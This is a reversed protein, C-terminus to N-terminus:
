KFDVYRGQLSRYEIFYGPPITIKVVDGHMLRWSGEHGEVQEVRSTNEIGTQTIFEQITHMCKFDGMYDSSCSLPDAWFTAETTFTSRTYNAKRSSLEDEPLSDVVINKGCENSLMLKDTTTVYAKLCKGSEDKYIATTIFKKDTHTTNDVFIKPTPNYLSPWRDLIFRAYTSHFLSNYYVPTLYSNQQLAFFQMLIPISLLVLHKKGLRAYTIIAYILFPIVYLVHRTPAFGATGYKWAPNTQYSFATVVIAAFILWYTKNKSALKLFLYGGAICLAPAYWFLGINLDFFQEFLRQLSVNQIGFGYITTWGDKLISWPSMVGFILLNMVYPLAALVLLVTGVIVNRTFGHLPYVIINGIKDYSFSRITMWLYGFGALLVLTQGHWSALVVLVLSLIFESNFFAFIAILLLMTYYIDVGPYAIFFVLPSTYVLGLLVIQRWLHTRLYRRMIFWLSSTIISINLLTFTFLENLHFFRLTLRFPVALLSYLIFHVPYRKGDKGPIYYLFGGKTQENKEGFGNIESFFDVGLYQKLNQYDQSNLDVSAHNIFTETMGFYEFIDGDSNRPISFALFYTLVGTTWLFLILLPIHKSM